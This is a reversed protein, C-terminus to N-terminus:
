AANEEIQKRIVSQVDAPQWGPPKLIKGDARRPGGAKQLNARHVEQFIADADIGLTEIAGYVVYLLDALEHVLPTLAAVPDLNAGAQLDTIIQHYVATVEGHEEDILKQRLAFHDADRMTIQSPLPDGVAAHFERLRKANSNM